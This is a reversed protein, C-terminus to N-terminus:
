MGGISQLTKAKMILSQYGTPNKAKMDAVTKAAEDATMTKLQFLVPDFNNRWTREFKDQNVVNGGNNDKWQQLANAKGQLAFEGAKGWQAMAQLAQPFMTSNPNSHSYAELQADTGTGGAAQWNRQANQYMFKNLEQFGSVDDSWKSAVGSLGPTNAVYGKVTNKWDEGPGSKVGQQSLKLVNDYVNVRTPSDSALDVLANYRKAGAGALTEQSANYGAPNAPRITSAPAPAAGQVADIQSQVDDIHTKLMAASKPDYAKSTPDSLATFAQKAQALERTASPVDLGMGGSVQSRMGATGPAAPAAPARPAGSLGPPLGLFYSPNGNEDVGTGLSGETKGLTTARQSATVADTGGTVPVVAWSGDAGRTNMFGAPAPDPLTNITGDATMYAQGRLSTPAVFNAKTISAKLAANWQPSGEPINAARMTKVLDTPTFAAAQAKLYEGRDTMAMLQAIAPPMGAPNLPNGPAAQPQTMSDMRAANAVTPGVSGAGAGQALATPAADSASMAPAPGGQGGFANKVADMWNLTQSMSLNGQDLQLQALQRQIIKMPADAMVQGYGAAGAGFNGQLLGGALAM